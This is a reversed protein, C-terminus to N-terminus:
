RRVPLTRCPLTGQASEGLIGASAWSVGIHTDTRGGFCAISTLNRECEDPVSFVVVVCYNPVRTITDLTRARTVPTSEFVTVDVEVNVSKVEPGVIRKYWRPSTSKEQSMPVGDVLVM